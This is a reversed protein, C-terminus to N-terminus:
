RVWLYVGKTIVQVIHVCAWVIMFEWFFRSGLLKTM